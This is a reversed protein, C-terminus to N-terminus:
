PVLHVWEHARGLDEIVGSRILDLITPEEIDGHTKTAAMLGQAKIALAPLLLGVFGHDGAGRSTTEETSLSRSVVARVVIRKNRQEVVPGGSMGSDMPCTVLLGVLAIVTTSEPVEARTDIPLAMDFRDKSDEPLTASLFAVDINGRWWAGDM